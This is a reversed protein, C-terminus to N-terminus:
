IIVYLYGGLKIILLVDKDNESMCLLTEWLYEHSFKGKM